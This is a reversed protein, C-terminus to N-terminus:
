LKEISLRYKGKSFLFASVHFFYVGKKKIKLKKIEEDATTGAKAKMLKCQEPPGLEPYCPLEYQWIETTGRKWVYLDFDKGKPGDLFVRYTGRKLLRKFVDNVDDPWRVTGRRIARITRAGDINGDTVMTTNTTSATLAALANVRADSMRTFAGARVKGLLDLTDLAVPHDASSLIANKLEAHTYVPNQSKVLGAVGAVFPAAMSTGSMVGYCPPSVCASAPLTSLVDVGPAAVDVSDHGWHTFLCNPESRAGCGTAYGYQDHHNTAAVSLINPLNYSAPFFPSEGRSEGCQNGVFLDNDLACNGSAAVVLVGATGLRAIARREMRSWLAIGFSANIIDAGMVRAYEFALLKAELSIENAPDGVKLVMIRCQPCVGAVGTPLTQNFEAAAIGAVHTGHVFDLGQDADPPDVLSSPACIRDGFDCGNVDDVYGNGDNDVGDVTADNANVWLNGDLDPHTVDVGQDMIAIVTTPDGRQLDWADAVDADADLTGTAEAPPPDVLPHPQGVNRLAWQKAFEPDNPILETLETRVNPEVMEVLPNARYMSLAGAMSVGLPLQVVDIGFSKIRRSVRARQRAHVQRAALRDVGERFKVLVEGPVWRGPLEREIGKQLPPPPPQSRAQGPGTLSVSVLSAGVILALSGRRM